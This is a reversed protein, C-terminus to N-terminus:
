EFVVSEGDSIRSIYISHFIVRDLCSDITWRLDTENELSVLRHRSNLLRFLYSTTAFFIDFIIKSPFHTLLSNIILITKINDHMYILKYIVMFDVPSM